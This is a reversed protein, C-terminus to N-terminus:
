SIHFWGCHLQNTAAAHAPNARGYKAIRESRVCSPCSPCTQYTEAKCCILLQIALDPWSQLKAQDKTAAHSIKHGVRIAYIHM